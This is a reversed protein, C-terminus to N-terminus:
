KADEGDSDKSNTDEEIENEFDEEINMEMNQVDKIEGHVFKISNYVASFGAALAGVGVTIAVEKITELGGCTLDHTVANTIVSMNVFLYSLSAQWFTKLARTLIDKKAETM